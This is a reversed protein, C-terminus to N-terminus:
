DGTKVIWINAKNGLDEVEKKLFNFKNPKVVDMIQDMNDIKVSKDFELEEFNSIQNMRKETAKEVLGYLQLSEEDIKRKNNKENLLRVKKHGSKTIKM